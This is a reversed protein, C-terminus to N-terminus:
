LLEVRRLELTKLPYFKKLSNRLSLQINGNIVSSMFEDYTKEELEKALIKKTNSRLLDATLATSKLKTVIFPKVRLKKGDKSVLTISDEVLSSGAKVFRGLYYPIQEYKKVQTKALGSAVESVVFTLRVNQNKVNNSIYMLNIKSTKGVLSNLDSVQSSGLKASNLFEPAVIDVPFKRKAKKVKSKVVIKAM